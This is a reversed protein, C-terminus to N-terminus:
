NWGCANSRPLSATPKTGVVPVAFVSWCRTSCARLSVPNADPMNGCVLPCSRHCIALVWGPSAALRRPLWGGGVRAPAWRHLQAPSLHLIDRWMGLHRRLLELSRGLMDPQAVLVQLALSYSCPCNPAPAALM